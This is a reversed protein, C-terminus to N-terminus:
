TLPLESVHIDATTSRHVQLGLYAREGFTETRTNAHDFACLQEWEQYAAHPLYLHHPTRGGRHCQNRAETALKHFSPPLNMKM